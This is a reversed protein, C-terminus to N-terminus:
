LFRMAFLISLLAVLGAGVAMISQMGDEVGNGDGNRSNRAVGNSNSSTSSSSSGVREGLERRRQQQQKHLTVLHPFLKSFTPDQVNYDLSQKAFKKKQYSSTEISGLTPATEAMFSILGTIITSVSWMPNWSEPHFDSM